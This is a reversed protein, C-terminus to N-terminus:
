GIKPLKLRKGSIFSQKNKAAVVQRTSTLRLRFGQRLRTPGVTKTVRLDVWDAYDATVVKGASVPWFSKLRKPFPEDIACSM